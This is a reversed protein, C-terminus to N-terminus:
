TTSFYLSEHSLDTRNASSARSTHVAGLCIKTFRSSYTICKKQKCCRKEIDEPMPRCNSCVCWEPAAEHNETSGQSPEQSIAGYEDDLDDEAIVLTHIYDMSGIGGRLSRIALKRVM